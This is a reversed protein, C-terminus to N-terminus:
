WRGALLRTEIDAKVDELVHEIEGPRLEELGELLYNIWARWRQTDMAAFTALTAELATQVEVGPLKPQTQGIV